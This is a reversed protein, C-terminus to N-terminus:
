EVTRVLPNKRWYCEGTGVDHIIRIKNRLREFRSVPSKHNRTIDGEPIEFYRKTVGLIYDATCLCFSDRKGIIQFFADEVIKNGKFQEKFKQFADKLKKELRSSSQEIKIFYIYRNKSSLRMSVLKLFLEIYIEEYVSVDNSELKKFALHVEGSITPAAYLNHPKSLSNQASTVWLPTVDAATISCKSINLSARVPKKERKIASM